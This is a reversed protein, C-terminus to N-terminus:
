PKLVLLGDASKAVWPRDSGTPLTTPDLKAMWPLGGDRGLQLCLRVTKVSTCRQLLERLVEARLSYASEVLERAEQLPQRVGVDSLMELLAREPASVQPAGSRKEFPGVHLMAGPQEEFLRKRHYEAPFRETFWEPLRGAAWGYLHLFPQQPVYQRLGYWDLASKGGVHSGELRRQLLLLSPYLALIDNPRCFVGRTLRTLWGARVYHVALDASIGLTVLDESTLPTGPAVRTYLANLKSSVITAM